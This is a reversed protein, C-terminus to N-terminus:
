VAQLGTLLSRYAREAYNSRADLKRKIEIHYQEEMVPPGENAEKWPIKM